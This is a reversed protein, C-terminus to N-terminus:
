PVRISPIIKSSSVSNLSFHPCVLINCASIIRHDIFILSILTKLDINLIIKKRLSLMLLIFSTAISRSLVNNSLLLCIDSCVFSTNFSAILCSNINYRSCSTNEFRNRLKQSINFTNTICNTTISCCYIILIFFLNNIRIM